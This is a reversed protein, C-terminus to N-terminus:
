ILRLGINLMRMWLFANFSISPNGALTLLRHEFPPNSDREVRFAHPNRDLEWMFLFWQEPIIDPFAFEESIARSQEHVYRELLFGSLRLCAVIGGISATLSIAQGISRRHSPHPHFRLLPIGVRSLLM